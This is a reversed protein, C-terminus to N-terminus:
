KKIEWYSLLNQKEVNNIKGKKDYIDSIFSFDFGIFFIFPLRYIKNNKFAKLWKM